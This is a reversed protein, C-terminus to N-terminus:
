DFLTTQKNTYKKTESWFKKGLPHRSYFALRYLPASRQYNRVLVSEHAENRKYGLEAMHESFERLVFLSFGTSGTPAPAWRERWDERGTFRGVVTNGPATYNGVNRNADMDTPVLVLFDIYRASALTEITAFSLNDMRFPDAFCFTLVRNQKSPEPINEIIRPATSNVDGLIYAAEIDPCDRPVRHSLANLQAEDIECFIYRDFKNDLCAVLLPSSLVIEGTERIRARGAGAFLDVYVLNEWKDRMRATFMDAFKTVLGYKELAWCGVDPTVLGDDALPMFYSEALLIIGRHCSM